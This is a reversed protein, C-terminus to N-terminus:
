QLRIGNKNTVVFDFLAPTQLSPHQFDQKRAPLETGRSANRFEAINGKRLAEYLEPVRKVGYSLWERLWISGDQPEWDAQKAALGDKTLAFSLLGMGLWPNEAAAQTSQSATLIRIRKDWALQGLGSNGMPGPKFDGAEVSAASYCADLIMVMEGVDLPRLWQTLDDSSIASATLAPETASDNCSGHVDSPLLYFKGDRATHGHGSFSLIFIDDPTAQQQAKLIAERIQTKTARNHAADLSVLTQVSPNLSALATSLSARLANADPAAYQLACGSGQSWNVGVHILFARQIKPSPDKVVPMTVASTDSKVLASNFAYATFTVADRTPWRPIQLNDFTYEPQDLDGEKFAVLQGDRFLRLDKAGSNNQKAVKIRVLARGRRQPDPQASTISVAPQARNITSLDPLPQLNEGALLRTFLRPTYYQRMFIELPLVETSNGSLRWRVTSNLGEFDDTDFRGSADTVLWGSGNLILKSILRGKITCVQIAGTGDILYVTGENSITVVSGTANNSFPAENFNFPPRWTAIQTRTQLDLVSIGPGEPNSVLVAYHGDPSIGGGSPFGIRTKITFDTDASVIRAFTNGALLVKGSAAIAVHPKSSPPDTTDCGASILQPGLFAGVPIALKSTCTQQQRWAGNTKRALILQLDSHSILPPLDPKGHKVGATFDRLQKEFDSNDLRLVGGTAWSIADGADNITLSFVNEEPLVIGTREIDKAGGRSILLEHDKGTSLILKGDPSLTRKAGPSAPLIPRTAGQQTLWEQIGRDSDMIGLTDPSFWQFAVPSRLQASLNQPAPRDRSLIAVSGDVGGFAYATGDYNSAARYAILPPRLAPDESFSDTTISRLWRPYDNEVEIWAVHSGDGSLMHDICANCNFQASRATTLNAITFSGAQHGLIIIENKANFAAQDLENMKFGRWTGREGTELNWLLVSEDAHRVFLQNSQQNIWLGTARSGTRQILAAHEPGYGLILGDLTAFVHWNGDPSEATATVPSDPDTQPFETSFSKGPKGTAISIEAVRKVFLGEHTFLHSGDPALAVSGFTRGFDSPFERVMSRTPLHWIKIAGESGETLLTQGSQSFALHEVMQGHGVQLILEPASAPLQSALPGRSIVLLALCAQLTRAM